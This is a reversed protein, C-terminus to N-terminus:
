QGKWHLEYVADKVEPNNYLQDFYFEYGPHAKQFLELLIQLYKEQGRGIYVKIPREDELMQTASVFEDWNFFKNTWSYMLYRDPYASKLADAFYKGVPGVTFYANGLAWSYFPAGSYYGRIILRDNPAIHQNVGLIRKKQIDARNPNMYGSYSHVAMLMMVFSIVLTILQMRSANLKNHVFSAPLLLILILFAPKLSLAPNFYHYAFHKCIFVVLLIFGASLAFHARAIRRVVANEKSIFFATIGSLLSLGALIFVMPDYQYLQVFRTTFQSLDIVSSEGSGWKGSHMFMNGSWSLFHEMNSLVPFAFAFFFLLAFGSFYIRKRWNPLVFLPVVFFATFSLKSAIGWGVLLGFLLPYNLKKHNKNYIYRLVLLVIFSLPILMINEPVIRASTDILNSNVFFAIQLSLAIWINGSYDLAKKGLLYMAPVFLLSLLVFGAFLYQEPNQVTDALFSGGGSFWYMMRAALAILLQLPTGPHDMYGTDLRGDALAIGGLYHFYEPDLSSLYIWGLHRRIVLAMFLHFFPLLSLLWLQKEWCINKHMRLGSM